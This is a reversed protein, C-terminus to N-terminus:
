IFPGIYLKNQRYVLSLTCMIGHEKRNQPHIKTCMELAKEPMDLKLYCRAATDIIEGAKFPRKLTENWELYQQCLYASDEFHKLFYLYEIRQHIHKPGEKTRFLEHLEKHTLKEFQGIGVSVQMPVYEKVLKREKRGTEQVSFQIIGHSEEVYDSAQDM